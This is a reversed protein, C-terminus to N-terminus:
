NGMAIYSFSAIVPAISTSGDGASGGGGVTVPGSIVVRFGNRTVNSITIRTIGEYIDKSGRYLFASTIQVNSCGNTFPPSFTVDAHISGLPGREEETLGSGM